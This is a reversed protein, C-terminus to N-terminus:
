QCDFERLMKKSSRIKWSITLLTQLDEKSVRKLDVLLLPYNKYHDTFFYIDADSAIWEDRDNNYVVLTQGDEKIRAFLKKETFFGPTGYSPKEYVGPFALAIKRVKGSYFYLNM